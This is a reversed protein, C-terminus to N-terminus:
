VLSQQPGRFLAAHSDRELVSPLESWIGSLLDSLSTYGLAKCASDLPARHGQAECLALFSCVDGLLRGRAIVPTELLSAVNEDISESRTATDSLMILNDRVVNHDRNKSKTLVDLSLPTYPLVEFAGIRYQPAYIASMKHVGHDTPFSGSLVDTTSHGEGWARFYRDLKDFSEDFVRESGPAVKLVSGRYSDQAYYQAFFYSFIEEDFSTFQKAIVRLIALHPKLQDEIAAMVGPFQGLVAMYPPLQDDERLVLQELPTSIRKVCDTELRGSADEGWLSYALDRYRNSILELKKGSIKKAKDFPVIEHRRWDIGLSEYLGRASIM